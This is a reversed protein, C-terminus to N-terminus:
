LFEMSSEGHVGITPLCLTQSVCIGGLLAVSGQTSVTISGGSLTPNGSNTIATAISSYATGGGPPTAAIRLQWTGGGCTQQTPVATCGQMAPNAADIFRQLVTDDRVNANVALRSAYRASERAAQQASVGFVFARGLDIMGLTMFLLVPLVLAFEVLSQAHAAHERRLGGNHIDLLPSSETSWRV